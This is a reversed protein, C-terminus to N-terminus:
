LSKFLRVIHAFTEASSARSQFLEEASNCGQLVVRFPLQLHSQLLGDRWAAMCQGFVSSARFYGPAACKNTHKDVGRLFHLTRISIPMKKPELRGEPQKSRFIVCSHCLKFTLHRWAYCSFDACDHRCLMRISVLIYSFSFRLVARFHCIYLLLYKLKVM